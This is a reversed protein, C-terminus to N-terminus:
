FEIQLERKKEKKKIEKSNLYMTKYLWTVECEPKRLLFLFSVSM